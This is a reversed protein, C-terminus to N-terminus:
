MTPPLDSTTLVEHRSPMSISRIISEVNIPSNARSIRLSDDISLPSYYDLSISAFYDRYKFEDEGAISAVLRAPRGLAHAWILGHLSSTYVFEAECIAKGIAFPLADIDIVSYKKNSRFKARERYHPIFIVRGPIASIRLLSPYMVGILLGPDGLFKVGSIDFGAHRFADYSLPGRLGRVVVNDPASLPMRPFKSGIGNVLDNRLVKHAISGVLLLRGGSDGVNIPTLDPYAWRLLDLNFIDGANGVLFGAGFGFRRAFGAAYSQADLPNWYFTKIM